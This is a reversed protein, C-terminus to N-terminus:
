ERERGGKRERENGQINQKNQKHGANDFCYLVTHSHSHLLRNEDLPLSLSLSLSLPSLSLSLSVTHVNSKLFLIFAPSELVPFFDKVSSRSMGFRKNARCTEHHRLTTYPTRRRHSDYSDQEANEFGHVGLACQQKRGM